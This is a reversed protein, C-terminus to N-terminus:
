INKIRINLSTFFLFFLIVIMSLNKKYSDFYKTSNDPYFNANELADTPTFTIKNSIYPVTDRDNNKVVLTDKIIEYNLFYINQNKIVFKHEYKVELGKPYKIEPLKHIYRYGYYAAFDCPFNERQYGYITEVTKNFLLKQYENKESNESQNRCLLETGWRAPNILSIIQKTETDLPTIIGSFILQPLITLPLVVMVKDSSNFLSSIFLGISISVMGVLFLIYVIGKLNFLHIEDDKFFQHVIYVFIIVQIILFLGLVLYKSLVYAFPSLNFLKERKLIQLEDVIERSSMSIGMWVVSIVMIFLVAVTLKSFIIGALIGLAISQILMLLIYEKSNSKIKMYRLTLWFCQRLIEFISNKNKESENIEDSIISLDNEKIYKLINEKFFQKAFNKDSLKKYIINISEAEFTSFLGEKDGYYCQFGGSGLFLVKDCYYLDDPKHTVMIITKGQEKLNVLVQMFESITEPDLPSTPEDLLLLEPETLLEAAINLRKTQGGSLDKVFKEKMDSLGVSRLARNIRDQIVKEDKIDKLKIKALFYLCDKVKLEKHIIDYQPVYGIRELLYSRYEQFDLGLVFVKGTTPQELNLILKLLTSKGCGSPGMIALLEGRNVEFQVPHLIKINNQITFSLNHVILGKNEYLDNKGESLTIKQHGVIITDNLKIETKEKIRKGRVYTGNTSGLDEIFYKGNEISLKFHKRSVHIDDIVYDCDLSRGAIIEKKHKLLTLLDTSTTSM